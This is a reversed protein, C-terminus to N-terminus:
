ETAHLSELKDPSRGHSSPAPREIPIPTSLATIVALVDDSEVRRIAALAALVVPNRLAQGFSAVLGDQVETLAPALVPGAALLLRANAWARQRAKDISFGILQEDTKGALEDLSRFLPSVSGIRNEIDDILRAFVGTVRDFDAKWDDLRRISGATVAASIGLDFNIHANIGLVAHQVILLRADSAASFAVQWSRSAARGDRFARVADFYRNAFAVDLSVLAPVDHFQGAEAMRKIEITVSRYIAAFFGLRSREAIARDILQELEAIVQELTTLPM